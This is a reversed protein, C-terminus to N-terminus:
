TPPSSRLLHANCRVAAQLPLLVGPDKVTYFENIGGYDNIIKKGDDRCECTKEGELVFGTPCSFSVVTGIRNSTTNAKLTDSTNIIPCSLTTVIVALNNHQGRPTSCNFTGSDELKAYIISLRYHTNRMRSHIVWGSM